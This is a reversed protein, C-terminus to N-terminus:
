LGARRHRAAGHRQAGQAVLSCAPTGNGSLGVSNGTTAPNTTVTLSGTAAGVVTPTFKVNVTCSLGLGLTAPCNNTSYDFVPDIVLPLKPNYSALEFAIEYTRQERESKPEVTPLLYRADIAQRQGNELTQYVLPKHFRAESSDDLALVLAGNSDV